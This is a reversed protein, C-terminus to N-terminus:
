TRSRKGGKQRATSSDNKWFIAILAFNKITNIIVTFTVWEPSTM